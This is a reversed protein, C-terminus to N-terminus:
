TTHQPNLGNFNYKFCNDHRFHTNYVAECRVKWLLFLFFCCFMLNISRTHGGNKEITHIYQSCLQLHLRNFSLFLQASPFTLCLVCVFILVNKLLLLLLFPVMVVLAFVYQDQKQKACFLALALSPASFCIYFYRCCYFSNSVFIFNM